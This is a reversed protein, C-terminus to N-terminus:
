NGNGDGLILEIISNQSLKEKPLLIKNNHTLGRVVDKGIDEVYTFDTGIEFGAARLQTSAQRKTRGIVDPISVDRYKTPNLTLYIKRNEKVYDGVEPDQEIVSQPPFNPNYSASDIVYFSLDLEDLKQQVDGLSMKELNPVQIQQSHNTTSGLWVKLIFIFLVLGIVAILIQTFFQKSKVFQFFSM